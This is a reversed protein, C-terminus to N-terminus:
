STPEIRQCIVGAFPPLNLQATPANWVTTADTTIMLQSHQWGPLSFTIERDNNNLVIAYDGCEYGYVRNTDDIILPQHQCWHQPNQRRLAILQQYFVLLDRDQEDGWIM